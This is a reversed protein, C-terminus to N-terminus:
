ARIRGGKRLERARELCDRGESSVSGLAEGLEDLASALAMANGSREAHRASERLEVLARDREGMQLLMMGSRLYVAGLGESNGQERLIAEAGKLQDLAAALDGFAEENLAAEMSAQAELDRRKLDKGLQLLTEVSGVAKEREGCSRHVSILAMLLALDGDDVMASRSGRGPRISRGSAGILREVAGIAEVCRGSGSIALAWRAKIQKYQVPDGARRFTEASELRLNESERARLQVGYLDALNTQGIGEGVLDGASGAVSISEKLDAEARRLDGEEWEVLALNNLNAAVAAKDNHEQAIGLATRFAEYAEKLGHARRWTSGIGMWERVQGAHDNVSDYYSLAKQHAGLSEATMNVEALTRAYSEQVVAVMAEDPTENLISLCLEFDALAERPTALVFHLRGKVFSMKAMSIRDLREGPITSILDMSEEPFAAVLGETNGYLKEVAQAWDGAASDQFIEELRWKEGTRGKCYDAAARHMGVAKDLPLMSIFYGRVLQHVSVGEAFEQVLGKRKLSSITEPLYGPLERAPVPLHFVALFELISKERDNLVRQFHEGLITDISGRAAETGTECALRLMLPHGGSEKAVADPDHANWKSALATCAGQDMCRLELQKIRDPSPGLFAPVSRSVMIIKSPPASSVADCLLGLLRAVNPTARDVDDLFIVPKIERMRLVLPSYLDAVESELDRDPFDHNSVHNLFFERLITTLSQVSDWEHVTYWLASRQNTQGEFAKAALTSKGIGPLGIVLACSGEESLIFSNLEALEAERGELLEVVPRGFSMTEFERHPGIGHSQGSLRELNLTDSVRASVLFDWFNPRKGTAEEFAKMAAALTISRISRGDDFSVMRSTLDNELSRASRLGKETLFYAKRRKPAGRVHCLRSEVLGEAALSTLARSINYLGSGMRESIGEQCAERPVEMEGRYSEMEMLHLQLMEIQSVSLRPM